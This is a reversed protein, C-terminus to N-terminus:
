NIEMFNTKFIEELVKAFFKKLLLEMVNRSNESIDRSIENFFYKKASHQLSKKPFKEVFEKLFKTLFTALLGLLNKKSIARATSDSIYAPIRKSIGAPKKKKLDYELTKKKLHAKLLLVFIGM